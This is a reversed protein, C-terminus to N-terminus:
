TSLDFIAKSLNIQEQISYCLVPFSLQNFDNLSPFKIPKPISIFKLCDIQETNNQDNLTDFLYDLNSKSRNFKSQSKLPPLTVKPSHVQWVQCYPQFRSESATQLKSLQQFPRSTNPWQMKM